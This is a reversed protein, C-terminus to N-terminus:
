APFAERSVFALLQSSGSLLRSQSHHEALQSSSPLGWIIPSSSLSPTSLLPPPWPLAEPETVENYMLM